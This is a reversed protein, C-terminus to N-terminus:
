KAAKKSPSKGKKPRSRIRNARRIAAKRLETLEGRKPKYGLDDELPTFGFDGSRVITSGGLYSGRSKVM